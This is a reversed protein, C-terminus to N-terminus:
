KKANVPPKEPAINSFMDVVYRWKGDTGRRLVETYKVTNVVGGMTFSATGLTYALDGVGYVTTPKLSMDTAGGSILSALLPHSAAGILAPSDQPMVQADSAYAAFVATTDKANVAAAFASDVAKVSDLAAASLPASTSASTSAPTSASTSAAVVPTDAKPACAVAVVGLGVLFSLRM